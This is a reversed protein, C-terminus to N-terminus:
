ESILEEEHQPDLRRKIHIGIFITATLSACFGVVNFIMQRTSLTKKDQTAEAFSRILIGSYLAVFVEPVMGVLTGLLYPCYNVNTAVVAYNYIVYPLPTIRILTVAQFQHLWNGEGALRLISAHKPHKELLGQIKTHFISGIFYPLSVGVAVGAMVLLFGNGYGFAMGAVWISPTSPLCVVPFLSLSAFIVIVREFSNFAQAEWKILPVVVKRLAFPGIWKITPIALIALSVCIAILKLLRKWSEGNSPSQPVSEEQLPLEIGSNCSNEEEKIRAYAVNNVEMSRRAEHGAYNIYFIITPRPGYVRLPESDLMPDLQGPWQGLIQMSPQVLM